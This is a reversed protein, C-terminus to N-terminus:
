ILTLEDSILHWYHYYTMNNVIAQIIEKMNFKLIKLILRLILRFHAKKLIHSFFNDLFSAMIVNYYKQDQECSYM